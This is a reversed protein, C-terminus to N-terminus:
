AQDGTHSRNFAAFDSHMVVEITQVFTVPTKVHHFLQM